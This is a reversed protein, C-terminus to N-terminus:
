NSQPFSLAAGLIATFQDALVVRYFRTPSSLPFDVSTTTATAVIAFDLNTWLPAGLQEKFQVQYKRGIESQWTLRLHDPPALQVQSPVVTPTAGALIPTNPRTEYAWELIVPSGEFYISTQIPMRARVWGYHLGDAAQFRVGFYGNGVANLPGSWGSNTYRQSWYISTLMTSKTRWVANSFTVNGVSTGAPLMTANNGQALAANTESPIVDFSATCGSVPIDATCIFLGGSFDFDNTGDRNLDLPTPEYDGLFQFAPGNFYAITSQASASLSLGLCFVSILLFPNTLKKM